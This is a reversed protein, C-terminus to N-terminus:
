KEEYDKIMKLLTAWYKPLKRQIVKAKRWTEADAAPYGAYIVGPPIDRTVVAQALLLAGDGVNVHEKLGVKGALVVGKGITSSGSIGVQAVLLAGDGIRVNHAVHVLNDIKVENGIVTKGLTGRDVCSNAGIEVDNGIEVTGIQPIKVHRGKHQVYGYGDAGIVTGAHLIVRDGLRCGNEVVVGPHLVCSAGITVDRGVVAGNMLVTKAGISSGPGVVAGAAIHASAHIRADAAVYAGESVGPESEEPPNFLLAIEIFALQPEPHIIYTPGEISPEEAIIVAGAGPTLRKAWREGAAFTLEDGSCNEISAVGNIAREGDGRFPCGLRAALQSVTYTTTV